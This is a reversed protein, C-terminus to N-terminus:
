ALSKLTHRILTEADTIAPDAKLAEKIARVAQQPKYGLGILANEADRTMLRAPPTDAPDGDTGQGAGGTEWEELRDRMEVMLREATKRGVGPTRVLASVDNNRVSHVFADSDIGSLIALAIRPGIGNVKILSRFMLKDKKDIFGFLQHADERVAFHTHLLVQQGIDPLRYLTTMPVQLEYCVGQVNVTIEPPAKEILTGHLQGIM